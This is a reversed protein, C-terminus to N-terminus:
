LGVHFFIFPFELTCVRALVPLTLIINRVTYLKNFMLSNLRRWSSAPFVSPVVTPNPTTRSEVVELIDIIEGFFRNKSTKVLKVHGSRESVMLFPNGTFNRMSIPRYLNLFCKKSLFDHFIMFIKRYRGESGRGGQDIVIPLGITIKPSNKPFFM